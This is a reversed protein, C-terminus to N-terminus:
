RASTGRATWVLYLVAGAAMYGGLTALDADTRSSAAVFMLGAVTSVGGSVMMPLQRGRARDRVAVGLQLAGSVAAWAGFAALTAGADSGLAAVGVAVVAVASIAANLRLVRDGAGAGASLLSAVVDILPYTALLVAAAVPVDSDTRPAEGGVALVVAAAWLLALVARGVAIRRPSSLAPAPRGATVPISM